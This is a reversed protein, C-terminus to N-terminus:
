IGPYHQDRRSMLDLLIGTVQAGSGDETVIRFAQDSLPTPDPRAMAWGVFLRANIPWDGLISLSEHRTDGIIRQMLDDTKGKRGEIVQVFRGDPQALCGAIRDRRNNRVSTKMIADLSAIDDHAILADSRYVLRRLDNTM